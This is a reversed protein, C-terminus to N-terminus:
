QQISTATSATGTAKATTKNINGFIHSRLHYVCSIACGYRNM